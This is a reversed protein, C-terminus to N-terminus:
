PEKRWREGGRSTKVHYFSLFRQGSRALGTRIATHVDGAKSFLTKLEPETAQFLPNAVYVKKNM